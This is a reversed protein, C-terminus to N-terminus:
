KAGVRVVGVGAIRTLGARLGLLGGHWAIGLQYIAAWCFFYNAMRIEPHDTAIGVIEVLVLSVGLVLPVRLGWRRHAAVAM